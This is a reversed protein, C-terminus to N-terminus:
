AGQIMADDMAAGVKKDAVKLAREFSWYAESAARRAAIVTPPLTFVKCDVDAMPDLEPEEAEAAMLPQGDPGLMPQGDPGLQPLLPMGDPGVQPVGVGGPAMPLGTPGPSMMPGMPAMPAGGPYVNFVVAHRQRRPRPLTESTKPSSSDWYDQLRRRHAFTLPDRELESTAQFAVSGWSHKIHKSGNGFPLPVELSSTAQVSAHAHDDGAATLDEAMHEGFDMEAMEMEMEHAVLGAEEKHCHQLQTGLKPLAEALMQRRKVWAQLLRGAQEVASSAQRLSPPYHVGPSLHKQLVRLSANQLDEPYADAILDEEGTEAGEAIEGPNTTPQMGAPTAGMLPDVGAGQM